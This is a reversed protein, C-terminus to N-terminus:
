AKAPSAGSAESADCEFVRLIVLRMDYLTRMLSRPDECLLHLNVSGDKHKERVTICEMYRREWMIPIDEECLRDKPDQLRDALLKEFKQEPLQESMKQEKLIAIKKDDALLKKTESTLLAKRIEKPDRSLIKVESNPEYELESHTLLKRCFHRIFQPEIERLPNDHINQLSAWFFNDTFGLYKESTDCSNVWEEIEDKGPFFSKNKQMWNVIQEAMWETVSIHKNYTVQSYSFFRNILYQDAAAIGKPNICLIRKGQYEGIEMCSILQDLEFTGFSTGSFVADRMLYDIRDADLESHLIQVWLSDVGEREVNGTIMDAIIGPADPYERCEDEIISKIEQNQQIIIAGMMEHHHGESATMYQSNKSKGLSNIRERIEKNTKRCFSNDPFSVLNKKYPFESVHSLPYHGIDHLLGALRILKREAPKLKLQIAIRDAIHMVGLSHIYRTHEAGPFVWNVISLQKISQLRKFLETDIIKREAETYYIFGYVNDLIHGVFEIEDASM